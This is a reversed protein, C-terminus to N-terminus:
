PINNPIETGSAKRSFQSRTISPFRVNELLESALKGAAQSVWMGAISGIIQMHLHESSKPATQQCGSFPHVCTCSVESSWWTELHKGMRWLREHKDKQEM